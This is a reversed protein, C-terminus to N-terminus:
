DEAPPFVVFRFMNTADPVGVGKARITLNWSGLGANPVATFTVASTTTSADLPNPYFSATVDAPLGEISLEVVGTYGGLRTVTVGGWTWSDGQVTWVFDDYAIFGVRISPPAPDTITLFFLASHSAVGPGSGTVTLQYSGTVTAPAAALTLMSVPGGPLNSAPNFTATVGTPAGTVALSVAATYGSTRSVIVGVTGTEGRAVSLTENGLSVRILPTPAAMVNLVLSASKEDVGSGRARVTLQYTGPATIEAAALTLTSSWSGMLVVPTDLAPTVGAPAGTVDLAIAGAFGGSRWVTVVISVSKGPFVSLTGSPLEIGIGPEFGRPAAIPSTDSQCAALTVLTAVTLVTAVDSRIVRRWANRRFQPQM